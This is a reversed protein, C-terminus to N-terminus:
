SMGIRAKTREPTDMSDYPVAKCCPNSWICDHMSGYSGRGAAGCPNPLLFTWTPPDPPAHPSRGQGQRSGLGAERLLYALLM